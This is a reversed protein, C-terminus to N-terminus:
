GNTEQPLKILRTSEFTLHNFKGSEDDYMQISLGKGAGGMVLYKKDMCGRMVRGVYPRIGIMKGGGNGKIRLFGNADTRVKVEVQSGNPFTNTTECIARLVPVSIYGHKSLLSITEYPRFPETKAQFASFGWGEIQKVIGEVGYLIQQSQISSEEVPLRNQAPLFGKMCGSPHIVYGNQGRGNTHMLRVLDLIIEPFGGIKSLIFASFEPHKRLMAEEPIKLNPVLSINGLYAATALAELVGNDRINLRRAAELSYLLTLTSIEMIDKRDKLNSYRSYIENGKRVAMNLIPTIDVIPDIMYREVLGNVLDRVSALREKTEKSLEKRGLEEETANELDNSLSTFAEAASTVTAELGKEISTQFERIKRLRQEKAYEEMGIKLPDVQERGPESKPVAYLLPIQRINSAILGVSQDFDLISPRLDRDKRDYVLLGEHRLIQGKFFAIILHDAYGKRTAQYATILREKDAAVNDVFWVIVGPYAAAQNSDEIPYHLTDRLFHNGSLQNNISALEEPSVLVAKYDYTIPDYKVWPLPCFENWVSRRNYSAHANKIDVEGKFMKWVPLSQSNFLENYFFELVLRRFDFIRNREGTDSYKSLKLNENWEILEELHKSGDM